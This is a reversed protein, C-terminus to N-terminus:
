CNYPRHSPQHQSSRRSGEQYNHNYPKWHYPQDLTQNFNHRYPQQGESAVHAFTQHSHHQKSSKHTGHHSLAQPISQNTISTILFTLNLHLHIHKSFTTAFVSWIYWAMSSSRGEITHRALWMVTSACRSVPNQDLQYLLSHM